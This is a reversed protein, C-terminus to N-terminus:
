PADHEADAKGSRSAGCANAANRTGQRRRQHPSGGQARHPSASSAGPWRPRASTGRGLGSAGEQRYSRPVGSLGTAPTVGPSRSGDIYHDALLKNLLEPTYATLREGRGDIRRAWCEQNVQLALGDRLVREVHISRRTVAADLAECMVTLSASQVIEDRGGDLGPIVATWRLEDDDFGVSAGLKIRLNEIRGPVRVPLAVGLEGSTTRPVAIQKPAGDRKLRAVTRALEEVPLPPTWNKV